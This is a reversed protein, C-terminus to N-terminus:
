MPPPGAGGAGEGAAWLRAAHPRRGLTIVGCHLIEWKKQEGLNVPITSCTCTDSIALIKRIERGLNIPVM